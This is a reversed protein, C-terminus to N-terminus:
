KYRVQTVMNSLNTMKMFIREFKDIPGYMQLSASAVPGSISQFFGTFTIKQFPGTVTLSLLYAIIQCTSKFLKFDM